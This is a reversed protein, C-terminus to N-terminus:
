GPFSFYLVVVEGLYDNLGFSSGKGTSISFSPALTSSDVELTGAQPETGAGSGAAQPGSQNGGCALITILLLLPVLIKVMGLAAM